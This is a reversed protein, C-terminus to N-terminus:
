PSGRAAGGFAHEDLRTAPVAVAGVRRRRTRFAGLDSAGGSCRDGRAAVHFNRAAVRTTGVGCRAIARTSAWCTSSGASRDGRRGRRASPWNTLAAVVPVARRGGVRARLARPQRARQASGPTAGGGPRSRASAARRPSQARAHLECDAGLAGGVERDDGGRRDRVVVARQELYELSAAVSARHASIVGPAQVAPGVCDLMLSRGRRRSWSTTAWWRRVSPVDHLGARGGTPNRTDGGGRLWWGPGGDRLRTWARPRRDNTFYTPTAHLPACHAPANSCRGSTGLPRAVAAPGDAQGARSRGQRVQADGGGRGAGAQLM